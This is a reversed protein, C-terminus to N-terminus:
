RRLGHERALRHAERRYWGANAWGAVALSTGITLGLLPYPPDEAVAVAGVLVGVSGIAVVVIPVFTKKLARPMARFRPTSVGTRSTMSAILVGMTAAFLLAGLTGWLPGLAHAAVYAALAAGYVPWYWWPGDVEGWEVYSLLREREIAAVSAAAQEDGYPEGPTSESM